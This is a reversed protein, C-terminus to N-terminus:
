CRRQATTLATSLSVVIQLKKRRTIWSWRLQARTTRRQEESMTCRPHRHRDGTPTIDRKHIGRPALKSLVMLLLPYGAYVYVTFLLALWFTAEVM